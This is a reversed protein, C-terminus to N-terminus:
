WTLSAPEQLHGRGRLLALPLPPDRRSLFIVHFQSPVHDILFSLSRHIEPNRILHLDDLILIFPNPIQALENLFLALIGELDSSQATQLLNLAQKGIEAQQTQLSAILYSWFIVPDNDGDDLSLWAVFPSPGSDSSKLSKVWNSVLTTKGFGAPASILTLRCGPYL